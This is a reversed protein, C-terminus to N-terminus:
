NPPVGGVTIFLNNQNAFTVQRKKRAHNIESLKEAL